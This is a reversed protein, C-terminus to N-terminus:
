MIRSCGWKTPAKKTEGKKSDTCETNRRAAGPRGLIDTRTGGDVNTTCNASIFWARRQQIYRAAHPRNPPVSVTKASGDFDADVIVSQQTTV